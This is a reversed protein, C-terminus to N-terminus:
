ELGRHLQNVIAFIEREFLDPPTASALLRGIRLHAAPREAQPILSYAAEHIRDHAFRYGSELRVLYGARVAREFVAVDPAGEIQTLRGLTAFDVTSGLCALEKLADRTSHPLRALNAAMLHLVNDTYGMERIRRLNWTWQGQQADLKLLGEQWLAVLFQLTFFPNGGTKECVLEALPRGQSADCALTGCVIACTAAVGLPRLAIEVLRRESSRLVALARTLGPAPGSADDRFAYVLLLHRLEKASALDEIIGATASDMWQLDDLFLVLPHESRAFVALVRRMAAQLQTLAQQPPLDTLAPQKGI